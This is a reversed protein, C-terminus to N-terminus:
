FRSFSISIKKFELGGVQKDSAAKYDGADLSACLQALSAAVSATLDGANIRWLLQGLRRGTDDMERRKAPPGSAAAQSKTKLKLSLKIKQFYASICKSDPPHQLHPLTYITTSIKVVARTSKYCTSPERRVEGM